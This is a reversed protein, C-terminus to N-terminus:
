PNIETVNPYKPGLMETIKNEIKRLSVVRSQGKDEVDTKFNLSEFHKEYRVWRVDKAVFISKIKKKQFIPKVFPCFFFFM